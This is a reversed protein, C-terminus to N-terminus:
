SEMKFVVREVTKTSCRFDVSTLFYADMKNNGKDVHELYCEYMEKDNLYRIPIVGKGLLKKLLGERELRIILDYTILKEPAM